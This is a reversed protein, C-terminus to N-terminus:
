PQIGMAGPIAGDGEGTDFGGLDIVDGEVFRFARLGVVEPLVFVGALAGREILIPEGPVQPRGSVYTAARQGTLPPTGEPDYDFLWLQSRFGSVVAVLDRRPSVIVDLPDEISDVTQRVAAGSTATGVAVRNITSISTDTALLTQGDRVLGAGSWDDGEFLEFSEGFAGTTLDIAHADGEGADDFARALAVADSATEGIHLAFPLNGFAIMTEDVIVGDCDVEVRFLAGDNARVNTSVVYFFRPDNPDPYARSASQLPVRAPEVLTASGDDEFRVTAIQTNDLVVLAVRGNISFAVRTFGVKGISLEDGTASWTGASDFRFVRFISDDEGFPFSVLAYRPDDAARAAPCAVGVDAADDVAIDPPADVARDTRVDAPADLVQVDVGSEVVGDDVAADITATSDDGCAAIVLLTACRALGNTRMARVMAPFEDGKLSRRGQRIATIPM